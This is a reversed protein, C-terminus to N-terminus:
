RGCERRSPDRDCRQRRARESMIQGDKAIQSILAMRELSDRQKNDRRRQQELMCETYARSGYPAGLQACIRADERQQRRSQANADTSAFGLTVVAVAGFSLLGLRMNAFSNRVM